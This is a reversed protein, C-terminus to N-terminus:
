KCVIMNATITPQYQDYRPDFVAESIHAFTM